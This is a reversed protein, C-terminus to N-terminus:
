AVNNAQKKNNREFETKRTRGSLVTIILQLLISIATGTLAFSMLM